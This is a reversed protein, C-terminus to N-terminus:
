AESEVRLGPRRDGDFYVERASTTGHFDVLHRLTDLITGYTGPVPTELTAADQSECFTLLTENAWRHHRSLDYFGTKPM